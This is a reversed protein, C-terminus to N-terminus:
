TRLFLIELFRMGLPKLSQFLHAPANRPLHLLQGPQMEMRERAAASQLYESRFGFFEEFCDIREKAPADLKVFRSRIDAQRRHVGRFAFHAQRELKCTLLTMEPRHLHRPRQRAPQLVRPM